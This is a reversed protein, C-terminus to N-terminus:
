EMIYISWPPDPHPVLAKYRNKLVLAKEFLGQAVTVVKRKKYGIVDQEDEEM